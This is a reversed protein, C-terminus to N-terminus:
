PKAYPVTTVRYDVGGSFFWPAGTSFRIARARDVPAGAVLARLGELSRPAPNVLLGDLAVAPIIRHTENKGDDYDVTMDVEPVHYLTKIALGIPSYRIKANLFAISGHPAAVAIPENWDANGASVQSEVGCRGTAPQLVLFTDSGSSTTLPQAIRSDLAYNCLIERITFPEDALPYRNDIPDFEILERRPGPSRVSDRDLADLAPAYANRPQFVPEPKWRLGNAFVVNVESGVLDVPYPRLKAVAAAPLADPALGAAYTRQFASARQRWDSAAVVTDRLNQVVFPPLVRAIVNSQGVSALLRAASFLSFATVLLAAIAVYRARASLVVVGALLATGCFFVALHGTDQRVFGEKFLLGLLLVIAAVRSVGLAARECVALAIVIAVAALGIILDRASGDVAMGASYESAEKFSRVLFHLYPPNAALAAACAAAAPGFVGIRRWLSTATVGAALLVIWPWPGFTVCRYVGASAIVFALSYIAFAEVDALLLLAVAGIFFFGVCYSFKVLGVVGAVLGLTLVFYRNPQKRALSPHTLALALIFYLLIDITTVQVVTVAAILGSAAFAIKQWPRGESSTRVSLASAFLAAVVVAAASQIAYTAPLAANVALYGLPGYTYVIDQGFVLHARVAEGLAAQWSPENGATAGGPLVVTVAFAYIGLLAYLAPRFVVTFKSKRVLNM